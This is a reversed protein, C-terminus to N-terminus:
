GPRCQYVKRLTEVVRWVTRDGAAFMAITGPALELTIAEGPGDRELTVTARGTLVVFMEDVEVDRVCGPTIEWM